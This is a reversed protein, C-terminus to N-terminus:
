PVLTIHIREDHEQNAMVDIATEVKQLPFTHTHLRDLQVSDTTIIDVAKRYARESTGRLGKVDINNLILTDSVFDPISKMGKLGALLVTGNTATVDIADTIPKTAGPTVDIALDVGRGTTIERIRARVDEDSAIITHTAGLEEAIELKGRDRELGTVIIKAAGVSAAAITCALGRVGPGLILVSDGAQANGRRHIWEVGAALPNFFVADEDSLWDPIPHVVSNPRLIMFEAFGGWLGFGKSLPEM